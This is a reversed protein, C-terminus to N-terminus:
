FYLSRDVLVCSVNCLVLCCVSCFGDAAKICSHHRSVRDPIETDDAEYSILHDSPEDTPVKEYGEFSPLESSGQVVFRNKASMV